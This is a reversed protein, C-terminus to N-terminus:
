ECTTDYCAIEPHMRYESIAEVEREHDGAAQPPPGTNQWALYANVLQEYQPAWAQNRREVRDKRHRADHRRSYNLGHILKCTEKHFLQSM